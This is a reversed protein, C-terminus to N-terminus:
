RTRQWGLLEEANLRYERIVGDGDLMFTASRVREIVGAM